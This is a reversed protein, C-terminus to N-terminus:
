ARYSERPGLYSHPLSMGEKWLIIKDFSVNPSGAFVNITNLGAKMEVKGTIRRVNDLVGECWQPCTHGAYFDKGVGNLKIKKGDNLSVYLIMDDGPVVPNRALMDVEINYVGTTSAIVDYTLKPADEVDRYDKTLPYCKVASGERGLYKIVKYGENEKVPVRGCFHEARMSIIGEHEVFAGAVKSLDPSPSALVRLIVETTESDDFKVNLTIQAQIKGQLATKDCTVEIVARPTGSVTVRGKDNKLTIQDNDCVAEYDFDVDGRSDIVISVSDTDPLLMSRNVLPKGFQWHAGLSMYREGAFYVAIKGKHIPNVNVSVPYGWDYDDWTRLGTHGSELMHKWKGSLMENYEDIYSGMLKAKDKVSEAYVNAMLIRNQALYANM